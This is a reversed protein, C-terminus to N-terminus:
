NVRRKEKVSKLKKMVEYHFKDCNPKVKHKTRNQKIMKNRSNVIKLKIDIFKERNECLSQSKCTKSVPIIQRYKTVQPM